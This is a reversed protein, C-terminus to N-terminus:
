YIKNKLDHPECCLQASFLKWTSGAGESVFVCGRESDFDGVLATWKNYDTFRHQFIMVAWLGSNVNPKGRPITWEIPKSL